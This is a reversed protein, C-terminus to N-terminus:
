TLKSDGKLESILYDKDGDFRYVLIRPHRAREAVAFTGHTPKGELLEVGELGPHFMRSVESNPLSLQIYKIHCGCVYALVDPRVLAM